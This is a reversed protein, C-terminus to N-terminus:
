EVRTYGCDKDMCKITNKSKTRKIVMTGKCTPCKETIPEDWSVFECKPYNSCGYFSRGKKTRKRVVTGDCLPCDVNIKDLIAKTNKCDPYGPCALFKGYRGNKVVMNKGCKECLVDSVEEVIEIKDIEEEAIVLVKHFDEYFEAVVNKWEYNGEAIEDLQEELRATFEENMINKFYEILLDNVLIGMDTPYFVRKDLEVYDRALITAITPSYTSPRGIGLEEMIKILSAESFRGPPQTFHQKPEIDKVKCNDGQSLDPIDMDKVEEDESTYVKLFGHFILKSGNARFLYDNSSLNVSLTDYVAPAM